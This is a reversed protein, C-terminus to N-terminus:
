RGLHKIYFVILKKASNGAEPLTVTCDSVTLGYAFTPLTASRVQNWVTMVIDSSDVIEPMGIKNGCGVTITDETSPAADIVWGSGVVNTVTKFAKNGTNTGTALTLTETIVADNYDTGTILLTGLTDAVGGGTSVTATVNRCLGDSPSPTAVTYAGVKMNVTTVFLDVDAVIPAAPAFTKFYSGTKYNDYKILETIPDIILKNIALVLRKEM